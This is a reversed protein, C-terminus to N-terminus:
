ITKIPFYGIWAQKEANRNRSDPRSPVAMITPMAPLFSRSAHLAQDLPNSGKVVKSKWGLLHLLSTVSAPLYQASVTPRPHTCRSLNQATFCGAASFPNTPLFLYHRCSRSRPNRFRCFRSPCPKSCRLRLPFVLYSRRAPPRKMRNPNVKSTRRGYPFKSLNGM